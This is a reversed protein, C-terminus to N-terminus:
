LADRAEDTRPSWGVKKIANANKWDIRTRIEGLHLYLTIIIIICCCEKKWSCEVFAVYFNKKALRHSIAPGQKWSDRCRRSEGNGFKPDIFVPPLVKKPRYISSKSSTWLDGLVRILHFGDLFLLILHICIFTLSTCTSGTSLRQRSGALNIGNSNSGHRTRLWTNFRTWAVLSLLPSSSFYYKLRRSTMMM